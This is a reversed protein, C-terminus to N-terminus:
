ASLHDSLRLALAALTLSPNADPSYPFVSLDCAYVNQGIVLKLNDDLAPIQESIKPNGMPLSGLEHAVVGLKLRLSDMDNRNPAKESFSVGLEKSLDGMVQAVVACMDDKIRNEDGGIIRKIHIVPDSNNDLTISNDLNLESPLIFFMLLRPDNGDLVHRRPLFSSADLWMNVIAAVQKKTGLKTHTQLRMSGLKDRDRPEVYEFSREVRYMDHDTLKGVDLEGTGTGFKIKSRLLIAASHVSGACLVVKNAKLIVTPSGKLVVQKVADSISTLKEVEAGLLIKFNDDGKPNDMAIELLRDIPSYAGEAFDFNRNEIFESAMRAWHWHRSDSHGNLRDIVRQHVSKTEPSSLKLISEAKPLYTAKLDRVVNPPFNTFSEKSPRPIFLGWVASRGGLGYVPGGDWETTESTKKYEDRFTRFFFNNQEGPNDKTPRATNLCHSIFPLEGREILLIKKAKSGLKQNKDFLDVALTGGGFGAGIIIIDYTGGAAAQAPTLKFFNSRYTSPM